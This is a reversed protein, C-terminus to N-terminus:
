LTIILRSFMFKIPPYPNTRKRGNSKQITLFLSKSTAERKLADETKETKR